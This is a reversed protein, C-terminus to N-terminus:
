PRHDGLYQELVLEEVLDANDADAAAILRVLFAEASEGANRSAFKSRGVVRGAHVLQAEYAPRDFFLAQTLAPAGRLRLAFGPRLRPAGAAVLDDYTM